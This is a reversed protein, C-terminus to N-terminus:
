PDRSSVPCNGASGQQSQQLGQGYLIGRVLLVVVAGLAVVGSVHAIAIVGMAGFIM